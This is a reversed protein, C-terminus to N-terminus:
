RLREGVTTQLVNILPKHLSEPWLPSVVKTKLHHKYSWTAEGLIKRSGLSGSLCIGTGYPMTPFILFAWPISRNPFKIKQDLDFRTCKQLKCASNMNQAASCATQFSPWCEFLSFLLFVNVNQYSLFLGILFPNIGFQRRFSKKKKKPPLSPSTQSLVLPPFLSSFLSCSFKNGKGSYCIIM